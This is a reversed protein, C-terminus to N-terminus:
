EELCIVVDLSSQGSNTMLDMAGGTLLLYDLGQQLLPNPQGFSQFDKVQVRDGLAFKNQHHSVSVHAFLPREIKPAILWLVFDDPVEFDGVTAPNDEEPLRIMSPIRCGMLLVVLHEGYPCCSTTLNRRSLGSKVARLCDEKGGYLIIQSCIPQGSNPFSNKQLPIRLQEGELLPKADINTHDSLLHELLASETFIENCDAVPCKTPNRFKTNPDSPAAM